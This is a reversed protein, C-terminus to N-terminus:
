NKNKIITPRTQVYFIFLFFEKIFDCFFFGISFLIITEYFSLNEISFYGLVNTIIKNDENFLTTFIPILLGISLFELLSNFISYISLFYINKKEYNNLIKKIKKFNLM